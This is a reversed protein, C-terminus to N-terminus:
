FDGVVRRVLGRTSYLRMRVPPPLATVARRLPALMTSRRRRLRRSNGRLADLDAEALWGFFAAHDGNMVEPRALAAERIVGWHYVTVEGISLEGSSLARRAEEFLGSRLEFGFANPDAGTVLLGAITRYCKECASCNRGTSSSPCVRLYVGDPSTRAILALKDQRSLDFGEHQCVVDAWAVLNDIEPTSGWPANFDETHSAPLYVTGLRQAASLPAVLGLLALGHQVNAWWDTLVGAGLSSRVLYGDAIDRLNAKITSHRADQIEAFEDVRASVQRWSAEDNLRVDAGWVTVLTPREGKRRLFTATSDVGGSFLVAAGPGDIREETLREATMSGRWPIQPYIRAFEDRIPHLAHFFTADCVPMKLEADAVWTMPALSAIAPVLLISPSIGELNADYTAMFTDQLLYRRMEGSAHLKVAIRGDNVEPQELQLVNDM